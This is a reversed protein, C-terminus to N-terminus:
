DSMEKKKKFSARLDPNYFHRCQQFVTEWDSIPLLHGTALGTFSAMKVLKHYLNRTKSVTLYFKGTLLNVNM